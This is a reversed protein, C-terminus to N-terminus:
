LLMSRRMRAKTCDVTGPVTCTLLISFYLVKRTGARKVRKPYLVRDMWLLNRGGHNWLLFIVRLRIEKELYYGVIKNIFDCIGHSKLTETDRSKLLQVRCISYWLQWFIFNCGQVCLV